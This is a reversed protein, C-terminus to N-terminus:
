TRSAADHEEEKSAGIFGHRRRDMPHVKDLSDYMFCWRGEPCHEFALRRAEAEDTAGIEWYGAGYPMNSSTTVYWTNM